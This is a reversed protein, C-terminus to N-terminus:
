DSSMHAVDDFPDGTDEIALGLAQHVVIGASTVPQQLCIRFVGAARQFFNPFQQRIKAFITFDRELYLLRNM